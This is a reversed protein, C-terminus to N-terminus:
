KRIGGVSAADAFVCDFPKDGDKGRITFQAWDTPTTPLATDDAVCLTVHVRYTGDHGCGTLSIADRTPEKQDDAQSYCDEGTSQIAVGIDGRSAGMTLEPSESNASEHRAVKLTWTRSRIWPSKGTGCGGFPEADDSDGGDLTCTWRPIEDLEVLMGTQTRTLKDAAYVSPSFGDAVAVLTAGRSTWVKDDCANPVRDGDLWVRLSDPHCDLQLEVRRYGWICLLVGAAALAAGVPWCGASTSFLRQAATRAREHAIGISLGMFSLLSAGIVFKGAFEGFFQVSLGRKSAYVWGGVLMAWAVTLVIAATLSVKKPSKSSSSPM